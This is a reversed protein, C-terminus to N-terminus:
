LVFYQVQDINEKEVSLNNFAAPYNKNAARNFDDLAADKSINRQGEPTNPNQVRALHARGRQYQFRPEEPSLAVAANCAEIAEEIKIEDFQVGPARRLPDYPHAALFDCPMFNEYAAMQVHDAFATAVVYGINRVLRSVAHLDVDQTEEAPIKEILQT